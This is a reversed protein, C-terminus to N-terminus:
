KLYKDSIPKIDEIFRQMRGKDPLQFGLAKVTEEAADLLEKRDDQDWHAWYVRALLHSTLIMRFLPAPPLKAIVKRLGAKGKSANVDALWANRLVEGQPDAVPAKEISNALIRHRAEECLTGLVGLFPLSLLGLELLDLFTSFNAVADRKAQETEFTALFTAMDM